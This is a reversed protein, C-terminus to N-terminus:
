KSRVMKVVRVRSLGDQLYRDLGESTLAIKMEGGRKKDWSKDGLNPYVTSRTYYVQLMENLAVIWFLTNQTSFVTKQV